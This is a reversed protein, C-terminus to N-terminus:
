LRSSFRDRAWAIFKEVKPTSGRLPPHVIYYGLPSRLRVSFPEVLRGAAIDGDVVASRGLAVGIGDIALQYSPYLLDCSIEKSFQMDAIGARRLWFPWDDRLILPSSTRIITHQVLDGPSDLGIPGGLLSPSCVPFLEESTIRTAEVATYSLSTVITSVLM